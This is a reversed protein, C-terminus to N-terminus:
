RNSIGRWIFILRYRWRRTEIGTDRFITKINFCFWTDLDIYVWGFDFKVTIRTAAHTICKILTSMPHVHILRFAVLWRFNTLFVGFCFYMVTVDYHVRHRRLDGAEGNNIRACNLSFMLAGRWQPGTFEGCLHDTIRLMNGNFKSSTAMFLNRHFLIQRWFTYLYIFKIEFCASFEPCGKTPQQNIPFIWIVVNTVPRCCAM